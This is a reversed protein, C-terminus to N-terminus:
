MEPYLELAKHGQWCKVYGMIMANWAVKISMMNCEFCGKSV